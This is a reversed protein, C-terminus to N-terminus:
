DTVSAMAKRFPEPGGWLGRCGLFRLQMTLVRVIVLRLLGEWYMVPLVDKKLYYM